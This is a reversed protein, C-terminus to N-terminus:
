SPRGRSLWGSVVRKGKAGARRATHAARAAATSPQQAPEPDGTRPLATRPRAPGAGPAQGRARGRGRDVAHHGRRRPLPRRVDGGGPGARREVGAPSGRGRRHAPDGAVGARRHGQAADARRRRGVHGQGPAPEPRHVRRGRRRGRPGHRRRQRADVAAADGGGPGAHRALRDAPRRLPRVRPRRRPHEARHGADDRDLERHVHRRHVEGRRRAQRPPRLLHEQQGVVEAPHRLM